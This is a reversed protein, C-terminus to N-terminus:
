SRQDGAGAAPVTRQARDSRLMDLFPRWTTQWPEMARRCSRGLLGRTEDLGDRLHELRRRLHEGPVAVLEDASRAALVAEFSTLGDDFFLRWQRLSIDVGERGDEIWGGFWDLASRTAIYEAAALDEGTRGVSRELTRGLDAGLHRVDDGMDGVAGRADAALRELDREVERWSM